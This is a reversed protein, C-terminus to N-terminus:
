NKRFSLTVRPNIESIGPIQYNMDGKAKAEEMCDNVYGQLWNSNVNVKDWFLGKATLDNFFKEKAEKNDPLKAWHRISKSVTGLSCKFNKEGIADLMELMRREELDLKGNVEKEQRAIEAKESRLNSILEIQAHMQDVTISM